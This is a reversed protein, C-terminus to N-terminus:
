RSRAARGPRPRPSACSAAARAVHAGPQPERWPLAHLGHSVHMEMLEHWAPHFEVEDIRNGFRDHTRLKPPNENALRGLEITAARGAIEGVARITDVAFDGGERAVAEVLPRDAEFVNYDALPTSQNTVAHTAHTADSPRHAISM